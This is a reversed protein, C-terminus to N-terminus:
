SEILMCFYVSYICYCWVPQYWLQALWQFCLGPYSHVCCHKLCSLRACCYHHRVLISLIVITSAYLALWVLRSLLQVFRCHEEEFCPMHQAYDIICWVDWQMVLHTTRHIAFLETSLFCHIGSVLRGSHSGLELLPKVESFAFCVCACACLVYVCVVLTGCWVESAM